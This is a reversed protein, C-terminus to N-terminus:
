QLKTEPVVSSQKMLCEVSKQGNAFNVYKGAHCLFYATFSIAQEKVFITSCPHIHEVFVYFLIEYQFRFSLFFVTMKSPLLSPM